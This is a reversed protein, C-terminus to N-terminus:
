KSTKIDLKMSQRAGRDEDIAFGLSAYLRMARLNSKTVNLTLKHHGRKVCIAIADEMIRRGIGRGWHAKRVQIHRIHVGIYPSHVDLWLWGVLDGDEEYVWVGNRRVASRLSAGFADESFSDDGFNIKWSVRQMALLEGYDRYWEVRRRLM